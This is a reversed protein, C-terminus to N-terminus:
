ELVYRETVCKRMWEKPKVVKRTVEAVLYGNQEKAEPHAKKFQEIADKSVALSIKRETMPTLKVPAKYSVVTKGGVYADCSPDEVDKEVNKLENGCHECASASRSYDIAVDDQRPLELINYSQRSKDKKFSKETYKELPVKGTENYDKCAEKICRWRKKNVSALLNRDPKTPDSLHLSGNEGLVECANDVNEHKSILETLAVGTIGGLEASYCGHGKMLAKAKVIEKKKDDDLVARYHETHKLTQTKPESPDFIVIDTKIGNESTCWIDLEGKKKVGTFCGSIKNLAEGKARTVVFADIDYEGKTFTELETSGAFELKHPVGILCKEIKNAIKRKVGKVHHKEEKTPLYSM